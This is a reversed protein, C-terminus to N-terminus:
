AARARLFHHQYALHDLLEQAEEYYPFRQEEARFANTHYYRRGKILRAPHKIHLMEHFLIFEVFWEPIETSDLTKSIVIMDHAADHHGLIRRTKRLSWTLAPRTIGGDFYHRNLKQFMRDLDYVRGRVTSTRKRGRQRRALDSARLIEPSFAYERYVREHVEPAKRALMKSVLIFALARQVNAPANKFIDSLRVYVRGSRLRITHHLGAYPYLKVEIEPVIRDRAIQKFADIFFNVLSSNSQQM